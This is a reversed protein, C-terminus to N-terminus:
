YNYQSHIGYSHNDAIMRRNLTHFVIHVVINTCYFITRQSLSIIPLYELMNSHVIALYCKTAYHETPKGETYKGHQVSKVIGKDPSVNNTKIRDM